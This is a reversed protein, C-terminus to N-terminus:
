TLRYRGGEVFARAQASWRRVRVEIQWSGAGDPAFSLLHWRGGEDKPNPLASISPVGLVAYGIFFVGAGFGYAAAGIGLDVELHEKVLSVNTRDLFSLVFMVFLTPLLRRSVKRRVAEASSTRM